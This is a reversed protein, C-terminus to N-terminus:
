LVPIVVQQNEFGFVIPIQRGWAPGGHRPYQKPDTRRGEQKNITDRRNTTLRGLLQNGQGMEM